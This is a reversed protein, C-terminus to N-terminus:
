VAKKQRADNFRQMERNVVEMIKQYADSFEVSLKSMQQNLIILAQESTKTLEQGTKTAQQNLQQYSDDVKNNLQNVTEGAQTGITKAQPPAPLELVAPQNNKSQLNLYLLFANFSLLCIIIFLFFSIIFKFM